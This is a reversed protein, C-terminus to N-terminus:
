QCVVTDASTDLFFKAFGTVTTPVIVTWTPTYKLSIVNTAVTVTPTTALTGSAVSSVDGLAASAAAAVTGANNNWAVNVDGTNSDLVTGNSAVTTYEWTLGGATTSTTTVTAITQVTGSTNSLIKTPCILVAPSYTQASTGTAKVNQRNLTLPNSVAAGTGIGPSLTLSAGKIDTGTIGDPAKLTQNVAVGNVDAGAQLIAAAERTFFADLTTTASSVAGGSNFGLRAGNFGILDGANTGVWGNNAYAVVNPFTITPAGATGGATFATITNGTTVGSLDFQLIKTPDATNKIQFNAGDLFSTAGTVAGGNFTGGGGPVIVQARVVGILWALAVIAVLVRRVNM